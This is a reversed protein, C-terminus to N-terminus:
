LSGLEVETKRHTLTSSNECGTSSASDGVGNSTFEGRPPNFGRPHFSLLLFFFVKAASAGHRYSGRRDYSDLNREKRRRKKKREEKEKKREEKKKAERGEKKKGRGKRQEGGRPSEVAPAPSCM